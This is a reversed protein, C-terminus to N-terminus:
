GHYSFELNNIYDQVTHSQCVLNHELLLRFLRYYISLTLHRIRTVSNIHGVKYYNYIIQDLDNM